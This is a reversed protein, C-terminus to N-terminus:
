VHLEGERAAVEGPPPSGDHYENVLRQMRRPDGFSSNYRDALRENDRPSIQGPWLKLNAATKITPHWLHLVQNPTTKHKTWLTDLARMFAVDEGGWGSFRPDTGGIKDFAEVPMVQVLAGWWNGHSSKEPGNDLDGPLPPTPFTLPHAPDSALVHSTALETLRYFQRYPVFWLRQKKARAARIQAACSLLVNYDLYCDADILAIVDGTVHLRANNFAKTKSFPVDLNKGTIVQAGPLAAKWYKLLWNYAPTRTGDDDRFPILLSIGKGLPPTRFPISM